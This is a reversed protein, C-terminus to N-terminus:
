EQTDFVYDKEVKVWPLARREASLKDRAKTLAKENALHAKRAAIWEGRSVLKHQMIVSWPSPRSSCPEGRRAFRHSLHDSADDLRRRRWGARASHRHPRRWSYRVAPADAFRRRRDGEERAPGRRGRRSLADLQRLGGCVGPGEDRLRWGGDQRGTQRG